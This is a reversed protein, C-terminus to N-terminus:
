RDLVRNVEAMDSCSESIEGRARQLWQVETLSLRYHCTEATEENWYLYRVDPTDDPVAHLAQARENTALSEMSQPERTEVPQFVLGFSGLAVTNVLIVAAMLAALPSLNGRDAYRDAFLGFGIALFALGPILDTYGGTDFDILFLGAAFWVTCVTVWWHETGLTGRVSRLFGYGGVLVFPSAWKFHAGGALLKEVLPAEGGVVAPIIVAQAVLESVAHWAFVVPALTLATLVVGSVVVKGAARPGWRQWALGVVVLPFIAGLQYYGVSAAAAAGSAVPHGDLLLYIALLGFFLLLYKAKFGYAPRVLYGPLLLLSFGASLSAVRNGTIRHTLLAVLVTCGVAALAMLAVNFMHYLYMDGGSLLALVATTEFPLPLKPEWADVYLRGGRTLLWGIHQFIGADPAMPPRDFRHILRWIQLIQVGFPLAVLAVLWHSDDEFVADIRKFRRQQSM